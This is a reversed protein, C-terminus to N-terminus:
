VWVAVREATQTKMNRAFEQSSAFRTLFRLAIQDARAPPLVNANVPWMGRGAGIKRCTRSNRVELVKGAFADVVVNRKVGVSHNLLFIESKL